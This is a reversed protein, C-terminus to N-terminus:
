DQVAREAIDNRYKMGEFAIKSIGSYAAERAERITAGSSSVGLVRGGSTILEDESNM